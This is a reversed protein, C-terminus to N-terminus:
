SLKKLCEAVGETWHRIEINYDKKISTKDLASFFPRKAKAPYQSTKIPIIKCPLKQQRIIEHAFDYWSCVGENSFHYAKRKNQAGLALIKVIIQALDPAYTPTGIQDAVVSIQPKQAALRLITKLFNGGYPSYLWATRLIIFNSAYKKVAEEGALKSQGYVGLPATQSEETLLANASQGSFVYDTSIHVMPANLAAAAKALNEPGLANVAFAAAQEDEAKDVNTYAACNVIATIKKDKVYSEVAAASTIDLEQVDCFCAQRPTLLEGLCAGLQGKAGTVLIM